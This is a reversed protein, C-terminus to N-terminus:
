IKLLEPLWIKLDTLKIGISKLKDINMTWDQEIGYPSQNEDTAQSTLICSKGTSEEIKRVLESLKIDGPCACNIPGTLDSEAIKHLAYGAFDSRIFGVRAHINPFYIPRGNMCRDIHWSLRKTYDDSGIVFPLRVMIPKLDPFKSFEVEAQRKAESYNEQATVEESYQYCFPDFASESLNFGYDYVSQSSTFIVRDTSGHLLSCITRAEIASYCIQDFVIDWDKGNLIKKIEQLNTRDAQLRNVKNKLGDEHRGRNLLTVEYGSSLLSLALHKGFFRNGGIILVRKKSM